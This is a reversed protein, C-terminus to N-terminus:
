GELGGVLTLADDSAKAGQPLVASLSSDASLSQTLPVEEGGGGPKVFFFEYALPYSSADDVWGQTSIAFTTNVALGRAPAVSLSGFAPPSNVAISV